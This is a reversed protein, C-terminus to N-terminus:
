SKVEVGCKALAVEIYQAAEFADGNELLPLVFQTLQTVLFNLKSLDTNDPKRDEEKAATVEGNVVSLVGRDRIEEGQWIVEGYVTRGRPTFFNDVLYRLWETYLYFKEEGNHQLFSGDESAEWKCLSYPTGPLGSDIDGLEDIMPRTLPPAITFKGDFNTTYGM